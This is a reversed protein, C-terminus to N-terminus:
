LSRSADLTETGAIDGRGCISLGERFLDMGLTMRLASEADSIGKGSM